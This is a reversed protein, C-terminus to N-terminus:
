PQARRRPHPEIGHEALVSGPVSRLWGRTRRRERDTCRRNIGALREAEIEVIVSALRYGGILEVIDAITVVPPGNGPASPAIAEGIFTGTERDWCTVRYHAILDREPIGVVVIDWDIRSLDIADDPRATSTTCM